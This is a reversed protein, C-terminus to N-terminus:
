FDRSKDPEPTTIQTTVSAPIQHSPLFALLWGIYAGSVFDRLSTAPSDPQAPTFNQRYSARQM